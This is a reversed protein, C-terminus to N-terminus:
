SRSPYIGETCIIYNLGLSPQINQHPQSGGSSSISNNGLVDAPPVSDNYYMNVSLPDGGYSGTSAALYCTGTNTANPSTATNNSVMVAHNHMPMQSTNLGITENGQLEGLDWPSLGPGAGTGVAVRGRLDPLAFTTQGDGGYTTGLISFLATNQAISLLQGQCFAWNLPAFNGGFLVVQGLYGNDM